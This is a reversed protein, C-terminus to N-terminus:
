PEVERISILYPCGKWWSLTCRMGLHVFRERRGFLFAAAAGLFPGQRWNHDGVLVKGGQSLDYGLVDVEMM